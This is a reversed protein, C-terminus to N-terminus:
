RELRRRAALIDLVDGHPLVVSARVIRQSWRASAPSTRKRPSGTRQSM